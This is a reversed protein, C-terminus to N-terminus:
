GGASETHPQQSISRLTIMPTKGLRDYRVDYSVPSYVPVANANNANTTDYCLPCYAFNKPGPYADFAVSLLGRDSAAVIM